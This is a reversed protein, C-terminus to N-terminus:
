GLKGAALVLGQLPGWMCSFGEGLCISDRRTPGKEARRKPQGEEPGDAKREWTLSLSSKWSGRCKYTVKKKEGKEGGKGPVWLSAGVGRKEV